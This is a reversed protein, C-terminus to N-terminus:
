QRFRLGDLAIGIVHEMQKDDNFQVLTMGSVLHLVDDFELDQRAEGAAQARKLMADGAPYIAARCEQFVGSKNGFSDVLEQAMARKTAAYEVFRRLWSALADWPELKSFEDASECLTRVENVYVAEFLERRTPFHRYLTGIGVGARAAIAELSASSGVEGFVDRAAAVLKEYNRRADARAPVRSLADLKETNTM